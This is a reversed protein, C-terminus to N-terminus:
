EFPNGRRLVRHHVNWVSVGKRSAHKWKTSGRIATPPVVIHFACYSPYEQQHSHTHRRRQGPVTVSTQVAIDPVVLGFDCMIASLQAPLVAVHIAIPALQVPALRM